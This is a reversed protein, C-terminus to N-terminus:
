LIFIYIKDYLKNFTVCLVTRYKFNITKKWNIFCQQDGVIKPFLSFSYKFIAIILYPVSCDM